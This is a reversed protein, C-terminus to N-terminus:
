YQYSKKKVTSERIILQPEIQEIIAPYDESSLIRDLILRASKQGLQYGFQEITTLPPDCMTSYIGNSFGVVAIDEPIKMRSEKITQCAGIATLDNVAFIGDPPQLEYILRKTVLRAANYNDCRIILRNDVPLNFEGLAKLYGNYRNKGILLDQTTGLHAIRKCGIGALHKTALYAGLFDDVVVRDTDMDECIRDFFVIPINKKSLNKFHSFDRTEKSLSVLLGEIRSSLLAEVNKVERIYSENSQCIMVHYGADYAVDEIGSIVQSFFYHVIEPIILGIINSKSSRLSLAIANPEYNLDRALDRVAKKTEDSIDPHNRLARSVTSPSIGLRSAIDKITIQASRM